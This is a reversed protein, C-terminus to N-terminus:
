KNNEMSAMIPISKQDMNVPSTSNHHESMDCLVNAHIIWLKEVLNQHMKFKGRLESKGHICTNIGSIVSHLMLM